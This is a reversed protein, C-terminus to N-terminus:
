GLEFTTVGFIKNIDVVPPTRYYMRACEFVYTTSYKKTLKVADKNKMPIDLFVLEGPVSSLCAKYLEEAVDKTDAFLPGIKFGSDAKRLVAYGKMASGTSFKYAKSEPLSLWAKLFDTRHYGFCLQDYDQIRNFDCAEIPTINSLTDFKEGLRQHREDRFSIEFGGRQYFSQMAVVGDMGIPANEHLRALLTDRRQYWLKKGMGMSRYEPKVIFFGMFGFEGGYSVISGGAVLTDEFFYGYYGDPDAAWFAEIDYPGPNWGEVKAWQILTALGQKTLKQLELNEFNIKTM